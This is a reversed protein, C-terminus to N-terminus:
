LDDLLLHSFWSRALHQNSDGGASHAGRLKMRPQVTSRRVRMPESMFWDPHHLLNPWAHRAKQRAIPDGPEETPGEALVTQRLLAQEQRDGIVNWIM